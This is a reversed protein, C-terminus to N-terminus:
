IEFTQRYFWFGTSTPHRQDVAWRSEGSVKFSGRLCHPETRAGPLILGRQLVCCLGADEFLMKTTIVFMKEREGQRLVCVLSKCWQQRPEIEKIDPPLYLAAKYLATRSYFVLSLVPASKSSHIFSSPMVCLYVVCVCRIETEGWCLCRRGGDCAAEVSGSHNPTSYPLQWTMRRKEGRRRQRGEGWGDRRLWRGRCM